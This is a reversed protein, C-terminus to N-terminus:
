RWTRVCTGKCKRGIGKCYRVYVLCCLHSFYRWKIDQTVPYEWRKMSGSIKNGHDYYETM